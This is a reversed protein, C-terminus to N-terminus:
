HTENNEKITEGEGQSRTNGQREEEKQSDMMEEGTM